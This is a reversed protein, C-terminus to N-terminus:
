EFPAGDIVFLRISLGIQPAALGVGSSDYMTEFMDDILEKLKPYKKDIEQAKKKLVPDGYAIIPYIM